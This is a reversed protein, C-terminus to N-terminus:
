VPGGLAFAAGIALGLGVMAAMDALAAVGGRSRAMEAIRRM